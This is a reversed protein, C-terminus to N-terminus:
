TEPNIKGEAAVCFQGTVRSIYGVLQRGTSTFRIVAWVDGDNDTMVHTAQADAKLSHVPICNPGEGPTPQAPQQRQQAAAPECAPVLGALLVGIVGLVRRM